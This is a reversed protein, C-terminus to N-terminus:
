ARSIKGSTSITIQVVFISNPIVHCFACYSGPQFVRFLIGPDEYSWFPFQPVTKLIAKLGTVANPVMSQVASQIM